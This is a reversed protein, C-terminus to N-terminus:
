AAGRRKKKKGSKRMPVVEAILLANILRGIGNVSVYFSTAFRGVKSEPMETARTVWVWDPHPVGYETGDGMRIVVGTPHTSIFERIARIDM